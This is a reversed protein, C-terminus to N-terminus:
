LRRIGGGAKPGAEPEKKGMLEMIDIKPGPGTPKAKAKAETTARNNRHFAIIHDLDREGLKMPDKDMLIDIENAM